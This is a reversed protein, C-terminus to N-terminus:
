QRARIFPLCGTTISSASALRELLRWAHAGLRWVGFVLSDLSRILAQAIRKNRQDVLAAVFRDCNAIDHLPCTDATRREVRMVAVQLFQVAAPEIIEHRVISALSREQIERVRKKGMCVSGPPSPMTQSTPLSPGRDLFLKPLIKDGECAFLYHLDGRLLLGRRDLGDAAIEGTRERFQEKPPEIRRRRERGDLNVPYESPQGRTRQIRNLM